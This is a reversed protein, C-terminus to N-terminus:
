QFSPSVLERWMAGSINVTKSDSRSPHPNAAPQATQSLSIGYLFWVSCIAGKVERAFNSRSFSPKAESIAASRYRM